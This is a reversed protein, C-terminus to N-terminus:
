HVKLWDLVEKWFPRIQPEGRPYPDQGAYERAQVEDPHANYPDSTLIGLAIYTNIYNSHWADQTEVEYTHFWEHRILTALKEADNYYEPLRYRVLTIGGPLAQGSANWVRDLYSAWGSGEPVLTVKIPKDYLGKDSVWIEHPGEDEWYDLPNGGGYQEIYGGWAEELTGQSSYWGSATQDMGVVRYEGNREEIIYTEDDRYGVGIPDLGSPDTYKLPNNLVYTYRNLSQPNTLSKVIPDASIFRGITPDYYRAGYYYLGTDDLRQGTFLKDTGLDGQSNRCYGYPYYKMTGLLTGNDSTVLATGALHDQHIYKLTNNKSMAVLKSGHYYYSTNDSTTLNVEYYKNVYLVTEGGEIKIVCNGDRDYVFTSTGNDSHISM